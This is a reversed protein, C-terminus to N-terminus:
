IKEFAGTRFSWLSGSRLEKNVEDAVAKAILVVRKEFDSGYGIDSSYRKPLQYYKFRNGLAENYRFLNSWVEFRVGKFFRQKVKDVQEENLDKVNLGFRATKYLGLISEAKRQIAESREFLPSKQVKTVVREYSSFDCRSEPFTQLFFFPFFADGTQLRKEIAALTAMVPDELSEVRRDPYKWDVIVKLPFMWYSCGHIEGEDVRFYDDYNCLVNCNRDLQEQTLQVSMREEM